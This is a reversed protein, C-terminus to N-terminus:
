EAEITYVLFSSHDDKKCNEYGGTVDEIEIEGEKELQDYIWFPFYIQSSHDANSNLNKRKSAMEM